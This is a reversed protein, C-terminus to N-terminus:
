TLALPRATRKSVVFTNFASFGFTTVHVIAVRPFAPAVKQGTVSQLVIVM